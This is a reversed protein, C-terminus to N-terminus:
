TMRSVTMNATGSLPPKNELSHLAIGETLGGVSMDQSAPLGKLVKM